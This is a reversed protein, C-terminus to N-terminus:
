VNAMGRVTKCWNLINSRCGRSRELFEIRAAAAGCWFMAAEFLNEDKMFDPRHFEVHPVGYAAEEWGYYSQLIRGMDTERVQPIFDRPPRPDCMILRVQPSSWSKYRILANSATPDGHVLCADTQIAHDPFRMIGFQQLKEQWSVDTSIPLPSRSWVHKKLAKEIHILLLPGYTAKSLKEMVYGDPLLAYVRPAIDEGLYQCFSGEQQCSPGFKMVVEQLLNGSNGTSFDTM